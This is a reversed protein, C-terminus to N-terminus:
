DFSFQEFVQEFIGPFLSSERFFDNSFLLLLILFNFLLILWFNFLCELNLINGGQDASLHLGGVVGFFGHLLMLLLESVGDVGAERGLGVAVQVDAVAFGHPKVEHQGLHVISFAIEAEIVGVRGFLVLLVNVVDFLVHLEHPVLGPLYRM